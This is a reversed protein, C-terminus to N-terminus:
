WASATRSWWSVGLFIRNDDVGRVGKPVDLRRQAHQIKNTGIRM